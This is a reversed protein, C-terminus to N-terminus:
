SAQIYKRWHNCFRVSKMIRYSQNSSLASDTLGSIASGSSSHCESNELFWVCIGNQGWIWWNLDPYLNIPMCIRFQGSIIQFRQFDIIAFCFRISSFLRAFWIVRSENKQQIESLDHLLQHNVSTNSRLEQELRYCCFIDFSMRECSSWSEKHSSFSASRTVEECSIMRHHLFNSYYHKYIDSFSKNTGPSFSTM